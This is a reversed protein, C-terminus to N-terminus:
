SELISLSSREETAQFLEYNFVISESRQLVISLPRILVLVQPSRM